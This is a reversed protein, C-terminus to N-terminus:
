LLFLFASRDSVPACDGCSSPPSVPCAAHWGTRSGVIVVTGSQRERMHPLVANTVNLVGFVNTQFQQMAALSRDVRARPDTPFQTPSPPPLLSVCGGEELVAKMGLGANNVVVDIRGFLTLAHDMTRQISEASDAVDLRLLALRSPSAGPLAWFAKIKEISRATAIVRDGRALVSAVLEKGFGSSTGAPPFPRRAGHAVHPRCRSRSRPRPPAYSGTIFWVRQPQQSILSPM